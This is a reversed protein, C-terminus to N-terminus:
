SSSPTKYSLFSIWFMKVLFVLSTLTIYIDLWVLCIILESAISTNDTIRYCSKVYVIIFRMILFLIQSVWTMIQTPQWVKGIRKVQHAWWRYLCLCFHLFLYQTQPRKNCSLQGVFIKFLALAGYPALANYLCKQWAIIKYCAGLCSICVINKRPSLILPAAM